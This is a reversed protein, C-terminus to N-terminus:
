NFTMALHSKLLVPFSVGTLMGFWIIYWGMVILMRVSAVGMIGDVYNIYPVLLAPHQSCRNVRKCNGDWSCMSVCWVWVDM